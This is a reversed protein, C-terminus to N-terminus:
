EKSTMHLERYKQPSMDLYKKFFRTFYPATSFGLMEAIENIKHKNDELLEKAKNVRRNNIYVLLNEGTVQKFLRSLYSPNFHVIESLRVLSLEEGLHESIYKKVKGIAADARKSEEQAQVEFVLGTLQHLYDAADLWSVYEDARTLKRLDIRHELLPLLNRRNIYSLLLLSLSYYIEFATHSKVAAIEQLYSTFERLTEQFAQQQGSELRNELTRHKRALLKAMQENRDAAPAGSVASILQMGIGTGVGYSLREKLDRYKDPISSWDTFGHDVIFSVSLGLSESCVEQVTEINGKLFLMLREMDGVGAQWAGNGGKQPQAFWLIGFREYEMCFSQISARTYREFVMHISYILQSKEYFSLSAPPADLKCLILLVPAAPDLPIDLEKFHETRAQRELADGSLLETLYEKQLIPMARNLQRSAQAMLDDMQKEKRIQVVANEVEKVIEEHGETKLLYRVGDHKIASYVYDFEHHGTLFIVRCEPWHLRIREMLQLGTMGPMRIDTLVIDIKTRNMWDMAEIGSYAKYVDLEFADYDRFLEYISDAIDQEDDVILLRYM